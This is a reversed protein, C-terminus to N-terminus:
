KKPMVPMAEHAAGGNMMSMMDAMMPECNTKRDDVLAALLEAMAETKATGTAANMKKVLEDLKADAAKMRAMMNMMNAQPDGTTPAAADAAAQQDGPNRRVGRQPM